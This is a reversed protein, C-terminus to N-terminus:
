HRPQNKLVVLNEYDAAVYIAQADVEIANIPGVNSAQVIFKPKNPDTLDFVFLDRENAFYFRNHVVKVDQIHYAGEYSYLMWKGKLELSAPNAAEIVSLTGSTAMIYLASGVKSMRALVLNTEPVAIELQTPDQPNTIDFAHLKNVDLVYLTNGIVSMGRVVNFLDAKEYLKVPIAPNTVDVVTLGSLSALYAYNGDVTLAEKEELWLNKTVSLLLPTEPIKVDIAVFGQSGHIYLTEGSLFSVNVARRVNIDVGIYEDIEAVKNMQGVIRADYVTLLPKNGIVFVFGDKSEVGSAYRITDTKAKYVLELKPGAARTAPIDSSAKGCAGMYFVPVAFLIPFLWRGM